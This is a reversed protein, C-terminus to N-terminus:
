AQPERGPPQGPPTPEAVPVLAHTVTPADASVTVDEDDDGNVHRLTVRTGDVLRYTVKTM